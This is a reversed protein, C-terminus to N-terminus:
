DHAIKPSALAFFQESKILALGLSSCNSAVSNYRAMWGPDKTNIDLGRYKVQACYLDGNCSRLNENIFKNATQMSLDVNGKLQDGSVGYGAATSGLFQFMGWAGSKATGNYANSNCGSEASAFAVLMCPNVSGSSNKKAADVVASDKCSKTVTYSGATGTIGGTPSVGGIGQIAQLSPSVLDPNITRLIVWACIGIILGLLASSITTKAHDVKAINGAAMLYQYAGIMLMFMALIGIVAFGFNVIDKVYQTVDGT